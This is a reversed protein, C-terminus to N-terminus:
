DYIGAAEGEKVQEPDLGLWEALVTENDEGLSKSRLYVDCPTQEFYLPLRDAFTYGLIPHKGEAPRVFDKSQLQPDNEVMDVSDQVVGAPIGAEQLQYMLNLADKDSTWQSIKADLASSTQWRSEATDFEANDSWSPEGMCKKLASWQEDTECVIALWREDIVDTGVSRCQYCGHPAIKDYPLKNGVPQAANGNAFYDLLTPGLLNVGVEYQALDVKQGEGTENRSEIAALIATASHLGAMHDLYSFGIGIDERGEVGTLYTLGAMAHITPAYTVYHSQPGGAGLGSMQVYIVGPNSRCMMDYGVGWRDLVGLSFNDIVVDAKNILDKCIDIAGDIQTNLAITRKNRNWIVFYPNNPGNGGARASSNVKVVDAGMDALLRTSFPGALVHTFDLIRIGELPRM